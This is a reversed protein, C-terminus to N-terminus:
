KQVPIATMVAWSPCRGSPNVQWDTVETDSSGGYIENQGAFVEVLQGSIRSTPLKHTLMREICWCSTHACNAARPVSLNPPRLQSGPTLPAGANASVSAEISALTSNSCAAPSWVM